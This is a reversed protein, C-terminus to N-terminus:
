FPEMGSNKILGAIREALRDGNVLVGQSTGAVQRPNQCMRWIMDIVARLETAGSDPAAAGPTRGTVPNEPDPWEDDPIGVAAIRMAIEELLGFSDGDEPANAAMVGIEDLLERLDGHPCVGTKLVAQAAAEWAPRHQEDIEPVASSSDTGFYGYFADCAAQGPTAASVV